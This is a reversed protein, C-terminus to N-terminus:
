NFEKYILLTRTIIRTNTTEMFFIYCKIIKKKSSHRLCPYSLLPLDFQLDQKRLVTIQDFISMMHMIENCIFDFHQTTGFAGSRM